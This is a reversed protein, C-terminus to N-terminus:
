VISLLFRPLTKEEENKYKNGLFHLLCISTRTTPCHNSFCSDRLTGWSVEIRSNGVSEFSREWIGNLLPHSLRFIRSTDRYLRKTILCIHEPAERVQEVMYLYCLSIGGAKRRNGLLTDSVGCENAKASNRCETKTHLLCPANIGHKWFQFSSILQMPATDM